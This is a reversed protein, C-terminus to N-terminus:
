RARAILRALLKHLQGADEPYTIWANSGVEVDTGELQEDYKEALV